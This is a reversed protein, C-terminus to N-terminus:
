VPVGRAFNKTADIPDVTWRVPGVGAGEEEGVVGEGPRSAAIRERLAREVVRDADTV